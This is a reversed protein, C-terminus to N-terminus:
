KTFYNGVVNGIVLGIAAGAFFESLWHFGFTVGVGVFLAIAYLVFIHKHSKKYYISLACALAFFITTHSSPWGGIIQERMFGFQFASSNDVIAQGLRYMHDPPSVRGTFTKIFTSILYGLAVGFFTIQLFIKSLDNKKLLYKVLAFVPLFIAIIFGLIDSIFLVPRPVAGMVFLFYQWDLGFYVILFTSVVAFLFYAIYKKSFIEKLIEYFDNFTATM